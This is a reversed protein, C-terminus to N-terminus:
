LDNRRTHASRAEELRDFFDDFKGRADDLASSYAQAFSASEPLRPQMDFERSGWVVTLALAVAAAATAYRSTLLRLTRAQIRRWVSRACSHPPSLLQAASLTDTYRQLCLDCWALHEAAELRSLEDPLEGAALATLAADSLHGDERFIDM